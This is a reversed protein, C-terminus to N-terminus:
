CSGKGKKEREMTITIEVLGKNDARCRKRRIWSEFEAEVKMFPAEALQFDELFKQKGLM